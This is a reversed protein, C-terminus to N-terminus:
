GHVIVTGTNNSQSMSQSTNGSLPGSFNGNGLSVQQGYNASYNYVGISSLDFLGGSAGAVSGLDADALKTPAPLTKMTKKM